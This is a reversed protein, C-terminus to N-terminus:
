ASLAGAGLRFTVAFAHAFRFVGCASIFAFHNHQRRGEFPFTGRPVVVLGAPQIQGPNKASLDCHRGDNGFEECSLLPEQLPQM